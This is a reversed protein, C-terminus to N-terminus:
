LSRSIKFVLVASRTFRVSMVQKESRRWEEISNYIIQKEINEKMDKETRPNEFCWNVFSEFVIVSLGNEKALYEVLENWKDEQFWSENEIEKKWVFPNKIGKSMNLSRNLRYINGISNGGHGIAIPIFHELEPEPLNTLACSPFREKIARLESAKFTKPLDTKHKRRIGNLVEKLRKTTYYERKQEKPLNKFHEKTRTTLCKKCEAFVGGTGDKRKNFQDLTKKIADVVTKLTVKQENIIVTELPINRGRRTKNGTCDLCHSMVGFKGKKNVGFESFPKNYQCRSCRRGCLWKGDILFEKREVKSM